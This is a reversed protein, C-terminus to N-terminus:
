RKALDSKRDIGTCPPIINQNSTYAIITVIKLKCYFCHLSFGTRTILIQGLLVTYSGCYVLDLTLIRANGSSWPVEFSTRFLYFVLFIKSRVYHLLSIFLYNARNISTKLSPPKLKNGEVCSVIRHRTQFLAPFPHNLFLSNPFIRQFISIRVFSVNLAQVCRVLRNM